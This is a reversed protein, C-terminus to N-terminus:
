ENSDWSALDNMIDKFDDFAFQRKELIKKAKGHLLEASHNGERYIKHDVLKHLLQIYLDELASLHSDLITMNDLSENDHNTEGAWSISGIKYEIYDVLDIDIKM